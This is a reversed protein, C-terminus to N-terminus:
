CKVNGKGNGVVSKTHGKARAGFVKEVRAIYNKVPVRAIIQGIVDLPV